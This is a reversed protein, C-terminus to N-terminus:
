NAFVMAGTGSMIRFINYSLTYLTLEYEYDYGPEMDNMTVAMQVNQIMSMNCSGSPASKEPYLAFSYVYVGETPSNTHHQYPQILNFYANSKYEIRDLGNFMIKANYLTPYNYDYPHRNSYNNWDNYNIVDSRRTIWVMEKCPNHLVLDLVRNKVIGDNFSQYVQEVLYDIQTQSALLTREPTDLYVYNAEVTANIDIVRSTGTQSPPVLFRGIRVDGKYVTDEVVLPDDYAYHRQMFYTPSVYRALTRDFVQYLERIPRFEINLVVTQYQLAILPLAVSSNKTFWFKLPIYFRRSPISPADDTGVPYYSYTLNNNTIIAYDALARPSTFEYVNGIMRDYTLRKSADMTLENWVDMWEGYQMDIVQNDVSVWTRKIIYNGINKIWQFRHTDNSYISPLVFTLYIDKVMDANRGINCTYTGSTEYDLMPKNNFSLGIGEMSFNTHKRYVMRFYSFDPNGMIYQDAAGFAILQAVGGPM